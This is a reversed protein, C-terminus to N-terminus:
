QPKLEERARTSDLRLQLPGSVVKPQIGAKAATGAAVHLAAEVLEAEVHV